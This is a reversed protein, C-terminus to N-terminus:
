KGPNRIKERSEMLREIENRFNDVEYEKQRIKQDLGLLRAQNGPLDKISERELRLKELSTEMEDLELSGTDIECSLRYYERDQNGRISEGKRSLLGQLEDRQQELARVQEQLTAVVKSDAAPGVCGMDVHFCAAGAAGSGDGDLFFEKSRAPHGALANRIAHAVWAAPDAGQIAADAIVQQYTADDLTVRLEHM